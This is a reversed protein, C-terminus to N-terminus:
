RFKFLIQFYVALRWFGLNPWIITKRTWVKEQRALWITKFLKHLPVLLHRWRSKISSSLLLLHLHVTFHIFDFHGLFCSTFILPQLISIIWNNLNIILSSKFVKKKGILQNIPQNTWFMQTDVPVNKFHTHTPPRTPFSFLIYVNLLQNSYSLLLQKSTKSKWDYNM